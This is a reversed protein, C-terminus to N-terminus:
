RRLKYLERRELGEIIMPSESVITSRPFMCRIERISQEREDPLMSYDPRYVTVRVSSTPRADRENSCPGIITDATSRDM